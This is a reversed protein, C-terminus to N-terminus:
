AHLSRGLTGNRCQPDRHGQQGLGDHHRELHLRGVLAARGVADGHEQDDQRAHGRLRGRQQLLAAPAHRQQQAARRDDAAARVDRASEATHLHRLRPGLGPRDRPLRLQLRLAGEHARRGRHGPRRAAAQAASEPVVQVGHVQLLAEAGM